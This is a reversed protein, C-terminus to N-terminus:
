RHGSNSASRPDPALVHGAVGVLDLLDALEDDVSALHVPSGTRRASLILWLLRDVLGVDCPVSRDVAVVLPHGAVMMVVVARPRQEGSSM